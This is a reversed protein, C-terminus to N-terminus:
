ALLNIAAYLYSAAVIGGIVVAEFHYKLSTRKESLVDLREAFDGSGALPDVTRTLDALAIDKALINLTHEFPESPNIPPRKSVELDSPICSIPGGPRRQLRQGLPERPFMM